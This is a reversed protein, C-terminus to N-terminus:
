SSQKAAARELTAVTHERWRRIFAQFEEKLTEEMEEQTADFETMLVIDTENARELYADVLWEAALADRESSGFIVDAIGDPWASEIVTYVYDDLNVLHGEYPMTQHLQEDFEQEPEDEVARDGNKASSISPEILHKSLLRKAIHVLEDSREDSGLSRWLRILRGEGEGLDNTEAQSQGTM